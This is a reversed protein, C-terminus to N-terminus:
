GHKQCKRLFYEHVSCSDSLEPHFAAALLNEQELLVDDQHYRLLSKVGNQITSIRPARIFVGEVTDPGKWYDTSKLPSIFSNIQRGYANRRVKINMTGLSEQHPSSVQSALLIAGACIGLCPQTKTFERLPEWLGQLKLLHVMTTSEGGPLIIGSIEELDEAHKIRMPVANLSLLKQEHQEIAGQLSLIGIKM